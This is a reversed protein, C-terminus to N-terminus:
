GRGVGPKILRKEGLEGGKFNARPSSGRWDLEGGKLNTRAKLGGCRPLVERENKKGEEQEERRAAGGAHIGRSESGSLDSEGQKNEAPQQWPVTEFHDAKDM